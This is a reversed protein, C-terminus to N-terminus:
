AVDDLLMVEVPEGQAVDTRDHELVILANAQVMASLAASGPHGVCCASLTGDSDRSVRARLYETRGPRKRLVQASRVPVLLPAGQDDAGMLQLLAPRVFVLFSVMTAVPNGPLGFFLPDRRVEAAAANPRRIRGVALPRGPRMAVRWFATDGLEQLLARTHDAEGMGVGGSTIIADAETAARLLVQRLADPDDPVVGLDLVRAGLRALLARLVFRNSDYIAGERPADGPTLLEDGTSFCAVLPRRRVVVESLGLSACLGLAAPGLRLGKSLATKGAALEEGARRCHDGPRVANPPVLVCPVSPAASRTPAQPVEAIWELPVVTDTGAPMPAGTTIRVCQNATVQGDWPRGALAQGVVALDLARGQALENGQFAYGDMAANDFAPVNFPSLIDEALVRGCAADLAVREAVDLPQVLADLIRRVESVRMDDDNAPLPAPMPAATTNM